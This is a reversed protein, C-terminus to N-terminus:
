CYASPAVRVQGRTGYRHCKISGYTSGANILGYSVFAYSRVFRGAAIWRVERSLRSHSFWICCLM